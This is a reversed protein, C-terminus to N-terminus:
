WSPPVRSRPSGRSLLSSGLHYPFATLRSRCRRSTPIRVRFKFLDGSVAPRSRAKKAEHEITHWDERPSGIPNGSVRKDPRETRFTIFHEQSRCLLCMHVHHPHPTTTDILM